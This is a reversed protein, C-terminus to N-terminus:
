KEAASAGEAAGGATFPNLVSVGARQFDKANRTVVTLGYARATAAILSDIVPMPYDGPRRGWQASVSRTVPLARDAFAEEVQRLWREISMAQRLDGRSRLRVIGQEIEGLTLVSVHLESAPTNAIWSTVSFAPNRKRVESVINTDLLYAM